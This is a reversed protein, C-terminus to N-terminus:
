FGVEEPTPKYYKGSLINQAVKSLGEFGEARADKLIPSYDKGFSKDVTEIASGPRPTETSFEHESKQIMEPESDEEAKNVPKEQMKLGAPDKKPPNNNKRDSDLGVQDGVPYPDNPITVKAGVDDGGQTGKPSLPLDSPKELAKVRESIESVAKEVGQQSQAITQVVDALTDISNAVTNEYSDQEEDSKTIEVQDVQEEDAM